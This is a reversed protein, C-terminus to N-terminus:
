GGGRAFPRAHDNTSNARWKTSILKRTCWCTPERPFISDCCVMPTRMPDASGHVKRTASTFLSTPRWPLDDITPHDRCRAFPTKVDPSIAGCPRSPRPRMVLQSEWVNVFIKASVSTNLRAPPLYPIDTTAVQSDPETVSCISAASSDVQSVAAVGKV